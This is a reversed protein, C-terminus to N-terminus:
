VMSDTTYHCGADELGAMRGRFCHFFQHPKNPRLADNDDIQLGAWPARGVLAKTSM